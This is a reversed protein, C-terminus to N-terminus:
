VRMGADFLRAHRGVASITGLAAQVNGREFPKVISVGDGYTLVAVEGSRLSTYARVDSGTQIALAISFPSPRRSATTPLPSTPTRCIRILLNEKSLVLAPVSVFIAAGRKTLGQALNDQLQLNALQAGFGTIKDNELQCETANLILHTKLILNCSM